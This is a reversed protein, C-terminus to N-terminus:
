YKKPYDGHCDDREASFRYWTRDWRGHASRGTVLDAYSLFQVSRNPFLIHYRYAPPPTHPHTQSDHISQDLKDHGVVLGLDVDYIDSLFGLLVPRQNTIEVRLDYEELRAITYNFFLRTHDTLTDTFALFYIPRNCKPSCSASTCCWRQNFRSAHVCPHSSAHFTYNELTQIMYTWDWVSSCAHQIPDIQIFAHDVPGLDGCPLSDPPKSEKATPVRPDDPFFFSCHMTLPLFVICLVLLPRISRFM